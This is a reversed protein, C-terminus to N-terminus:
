QKAYMILSRLIQTSDQYTAEHLLTKGISDKIENVKVKFNENLYRMLESNKRDEILEFCKISVERINAQRQRDAALRKRQSQSLANHDM